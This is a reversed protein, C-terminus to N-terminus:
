VIRATGFDSIKPKMEGDLLINSAKLDRHVIGLRSDQYLYLIGRAIGLIIELRSKWDLLFKRSQNFIFYDLSKNPMFEYILMKEDKEICCGLLRVLNRHQLKAILFVENKFEDIGQGSDNSLRKVTIEQGNVLQGQFFDIYVVNVDIRLESVEFHLSIIVKFVPGFGGRGLKNASSFNETAAIVTNLEFFTIEINGSGSASSNANSSDRYNYLSRESDVFFMQRRQQKKKGLEVADVRLYFHHGDKYERMDTLEGYWAICGQGGENVDLIAYGTCDCSKLCERECEKLNMNGYVTSNRADPLKVAELRVFGEGDGKGCEDLQKKRRRTTELCKLYWGQPYTPEFGPLCGCRALAAICGRQLNCKHWVPYFSTQLITLAKGFSLKTAIMMM